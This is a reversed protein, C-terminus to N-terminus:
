SKQIKQSYIIYTLFFILSIPLMLFWNIERTWALFFFLVLGLYIYILKNRPFLFTFFLGCIIQLGGTVPLGYPGLLLFVLAIINVIKLIKFAKKM